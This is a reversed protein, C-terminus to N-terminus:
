VPKVPIINKFKYFLFVSTENPLNKSTIPVISPVYKGILFRKWASSFSFDDQSILFINYVFFIEFIFVILSFFVKLKSKFFKSVPFEESLPVGIMVLRKEYFTFITYTFCSITNVINYPNVFFRSSKYSMQIYIVSLM